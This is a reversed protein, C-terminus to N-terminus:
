NGLSNKGGAMCVTDNWWRPVDEPPAQFTPVATKLPTATPDPPVTPEPTAIPEPPPAEAMDTSIVEVVRTDAPVVEAPAATEVIESDAFQCAVLLVILFAFFSLNRFSKM